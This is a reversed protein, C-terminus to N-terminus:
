MSLVTAWTIPDMLSASYAMVHGALALLHKSRCPALGGCAPRHSGGAWCLRWRDMWARLNRAAAQGWGCTSSLSECIIRSDHSILSAIATAPPCPPFVPQGAVIM